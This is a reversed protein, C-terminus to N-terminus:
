GDPRVVRPEAWAALDRVEGARADTSTALLLTV